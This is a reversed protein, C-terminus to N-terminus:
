ANGNKNYEIISGEILKIVDEDTYKKNREKIYEEMKNVCKTAREANKDKGTM